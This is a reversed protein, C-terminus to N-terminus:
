VEFVTIGSKNTGGITAGAGKNLYWTSNASIGIRLSYTVTGGPTDKVNIIFNNVDKGAKNSVCAAAIFTNGRFLTITIVKGSNASVFGSCNFYFDSDPATPILTQNWIETGETILPLTNDFPILTTGSAQPLDSYYTKIITGNASSVGDTIGYGALTTPKNTISSFDPTITTEVVGTARGKNDYTVTPVKTATGYTGAIIGSNALLSALLTGTTLNSANISFNKTSADQPNVPDAVNVHTNGNSDLGYKAFTRKKTSM